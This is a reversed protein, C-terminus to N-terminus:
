ANQKFSDKYIKMYEPNHTACGAYHQSFLLKSCIDCGNCWKISDEQGTLYKRPLLPDAFSQRGIAVMDAFGHQINYNGWYFLSKKETPLNKLQNNGNNLISYAGGIVVTKNQLTEKMIKAMSFHHYVDEPHNKAPMSPFTSEIFFNSGREELGKLLLIPESLDMIANDPGASGVGGPFGEWMTIKSGVLFNKDNVAQRVRETIEFPVRSRNEWSGGYRWKRDNYPRLIDCIMYGHGYKLDVGDAGIGYLVRSADVFSDMMKEIYAEDVIEGGIGYVPKPCLKRSFDDNSKEGGHNLQFVLLIDPNIDKIQRIFKQWLAINEPDYPDLLLQNKRARSAMQMTVSEFEVLGAQGEFLRHYREFVRDSIGGNNEADGGEMANIVFRNIATRQGIKIPQSLNKERNSM